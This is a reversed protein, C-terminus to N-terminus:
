TDCVAVFYCLIIGYSFVSAEELAEIPKKILAHGITLRKTDINNHQLLLEINDIAEV